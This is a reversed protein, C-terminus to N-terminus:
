RLFTNLGTLNDTNIYDVGAEKLVAWAAPTDPAAWFRIRRDKQHAQQIYNQLKMLEEPPMVDDGRWRFNSRWNDSILPMVHSALDSNLDTLRGDMGAYRPSAAHIADFDRDGSVIATIGKEYFRGDKFQSFVDSYKALQHNLVKFTEPGNNKIDILLTFPPGNPYVCGNNTIVRQQLPILYLAELTKEKSCEFATHAVLLEGDVLFIDAEVSCFGNELADLLPRKHLYDNHAHAQRHPVVAFDQAVAAGCFAALAAFLLLLRPCPHSKM